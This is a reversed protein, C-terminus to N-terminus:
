ERKTASFWVECALRPFHQVTWQDLPRLCPFAFHPPWSFRGIQLPVTILLADGSASAVEFGLARLSRQFKGPFRFNQIFGSKFSNRLRVPISFPPGAFERPKLFCRPSGAMAAGVELVRDGDRLQLAEVTLARDRESKFRRYPNATERWTQWFEPAWEFSLHAELFIRASLFAAPSHYLM